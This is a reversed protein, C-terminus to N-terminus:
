AQKWAPDGHLALKATLPAGKHAPSRGAVLTSQFARLEGDAFGLVMAGYAAAPRVGVVYIKSM